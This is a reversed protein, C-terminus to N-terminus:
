NLRARGNDQKGAHLREPHGEITNAEFVHGETISTMFVKILILSMDSNKITLCYHISPLNRKNDLSALRIAIEVRINDTKYQLHIYIHIHADIHKIYKHRYVYKLLDISRCIIKFQM